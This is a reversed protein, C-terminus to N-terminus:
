RKEGDPLAINKVQEPLALQERNEAQSARFSRMFNSQVVTNFESSQMMAWERLQNHSGVLPKIAPPLKEYEEASNYLSNGTAKQIYGWAEMETMESGAKIKTIRDVIQGVSPMFGKKDTAAFALVAAEAEKYNYGQLILFWANVRNEISSNETSNPFFEKLMFVLKAVESKTM